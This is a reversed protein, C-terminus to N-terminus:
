LLALSASLFPKPLSPMATKKYIDGGSIAIYPIGSGTHEWKGPVETHAKM